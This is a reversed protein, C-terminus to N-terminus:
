LRFTVVSCSVNEECFVHQGISLFAQPKGAILRRLQINEETTLSPLAFVSTAVPNVELSTMLAQVNQAYKCESGLQDQHRDFFEQDFAISTAIATDM